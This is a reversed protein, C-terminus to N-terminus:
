KGPSSVVRDQCDKKTVIKLEAQQLIPHSSGPHKIKGWGSSFFTTTLSFRDKRQDPTTHLSRHAEEFSADSMVLRLKARRQLAGHPMLRMLVPKAKLWTAAVLDIQKPQHRYM